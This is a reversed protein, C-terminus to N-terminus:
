SLLGGNVFILMSIVLCVSAFVIAAGQETEIAKKAIAAMDLDPFLIRRIIHSFLAILLIISTSSFVSTLFALNVGLEVYNEISNLGYVIALVSATRGADMGFRNFIQQLSEFM